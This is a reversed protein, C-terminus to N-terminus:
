SLRRSGCWRMYVLIRVKGALKESILGNASVLSDSLTTKGHDVHALICINRIRETAHQLSGLVAPTVRLPASSGLRAPASAPPAPPPPTAMALLEDLSKFAGLIVPVSYAPYFTITLFDVIRRESFCHYVVTNIEDHLLTSCLTETPM